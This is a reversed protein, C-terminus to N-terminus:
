PIMRQDELKNPVEHLWTYPSRLTEAGLGVKGCCQKAIVNNDKESVQIDNKFFNSVVLPTRSWSKSLIPM